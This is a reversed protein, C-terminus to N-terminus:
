IEVPAPINISRRASSHFLACYVKFFRENEASYQASIAQVLFRFVYSSAWNSKLEAESIV